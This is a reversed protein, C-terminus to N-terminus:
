KGSSSESKQLQRLAWRAHEAVTTDEDQALEELRPVFELRGSNGMATVVNRRVGAPKARKIPSGRFANRFEDADM